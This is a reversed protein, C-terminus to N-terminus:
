GPRSSSASSFLSTSPYPRRKVLLTFVPQCLLPRKWHTVHIIKNGCGMLGIWPCGTHPKKKKEPCEAKDLTVEESSTASISSVSSWLGTWTPNPSHPLSPKNLSESWTHGSVNQWPDTPASSNTDTILQSSSSFSLCPVNQYDEDAVVQQDFHLPMVPHIQIMFVSAYQDLDNVWAKKTIKDSRLNRYNVSKSPKAPQINTSM